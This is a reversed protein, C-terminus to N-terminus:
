QSDYLYVNPTSHRSRQYGVTHHHFSHAKFWVARSQMVTLNRCSKMTQGFHGTVSIARGFRGSRIPWVSVACVSVAWVSFDQEQFKYVRHLLETTTGFATEMAIQISRTFLREDNKIKVFAKLVAKNSVSEGFLYFTDMSSSRSCHNKFQPVIITCTVRHCEIHYAFLGVEWKRWV